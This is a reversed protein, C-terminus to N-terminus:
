GRRLEGDIRNDLPNLALSGNKEDLYRKLGAVIGYLSHPPYKQGDRQVVEQVFKGLWYAMSEGNMEQFPTDVTQVNDDLKNSTEGKTARYYQWEKFVEVLGSIRTDLLLLFPLVFPKQRKQSHGLRELHVTM